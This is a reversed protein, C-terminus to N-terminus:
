GESTEVQAADTPGDAFVDVPPITDPEKVSSGAGRFKRGPIVEVLKSLQGAIGAMGDHITTKFSEDKKLMDANVNPHILKALEGAISDLETDNTINRSKFTDLFDQINTVATSFLRKPKGDANPELSTQLHSVLELLTQRMVITIEDSVVAIKAELKASEEEYKGALKLADPVELSFFDWDFGFKGRVIQASPYDAPNWLYEFPVGLESALATCRERANEILSPYATIFTDVLESREDKYATMLNYAKDVSVRPLLALGMDYPLCLNALTQRMQGDSKTIAALEESDLLQKHIKLLKAAVAAPLISTSVKRENGMKRFNTRLLVTKSVISAADKIIAQAM